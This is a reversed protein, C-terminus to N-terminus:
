ITLNTNANQIFVYAIYIYLLGDISLPQAYFLEGLKEYYLTLTKKNNNQSLSM